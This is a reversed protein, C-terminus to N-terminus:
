KKSVKVPKKKAKEKKKAKDKAVETKEPEQKKEKKDKAIEGESGPCASAIPAALTLAFASAFVITLVKKM